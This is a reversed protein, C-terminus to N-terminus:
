RPNWPAMVSSPGPLNVTASQHSQFPTTTKPTIAAAAVGAVVVSLAFIHIALKM